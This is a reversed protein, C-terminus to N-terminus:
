SVEPRADEKSSSTDSLREKLLIFVSLSASHTHQEMSTSHGLVAVPQSM